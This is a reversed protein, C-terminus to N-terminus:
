QFLETVKVIREERRSIEAAQGIIGVKFKQKNM